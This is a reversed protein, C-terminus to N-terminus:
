SPTILGSGNAVVIKRGDLAAAVETAQEPSLALQVALPGEAAELVKLKQPEGGETQPPHEVESVRVQM